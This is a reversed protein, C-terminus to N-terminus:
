RPPGLFAPRLPEGHFMRRMEELDQRYESVVGEQFSWSSVGPDVELDHDGGTRVFAGCLRNLIGLAQDLSHAAKQADGSGWHLLSIDQFVSSYFRFRHYPDADLGQDYLDDYYGDLPGFEALAQM